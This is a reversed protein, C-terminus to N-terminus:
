EDPWGEALREFASRGLAGGGSPQILTRWEKLSLRWFGEPLLGFRAAEVMMDRWPTM